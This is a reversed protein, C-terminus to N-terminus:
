QLGDEDSVIEPLERVQNALAHTCDSLFVIQGPQAGNCGIFSHCRHLPVIWKEGNDRKYTEGGWWTNLSPGFVPREFDGNFSWRDKWAIHPSVVLGPPTWLTPLTHSM